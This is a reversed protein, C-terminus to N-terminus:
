FKLGQRIVWSVLRNPVIGCFGQCWPFPALGSQMIWSSQPSFLVWSLQLVVLVFPLKLLWPVFIDKRESLSQNIALFDLFKGLLFFCFEIVQHFFTIDTKKPTNLRNFFCCFFFMCCIGSFVDQNFLGFFHKHSSIQCVCFVFICKSTPMLVIPFIIPLNM